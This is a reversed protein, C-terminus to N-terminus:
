VGEYKRYDVLYLPKNDKLYWFTLLREAMFTALQVQYKAGRTSPREGNKIQKEVYDWVDQPKDFGKSKLWQFGIYVVWNVYERFDEAKMIFSNAYFLTNGSNIIRDWAQADNPYLEKILKEVEDLDKKCHCAEYQQRVTCGLKLPNPAIAYHTKLIPEFDFDEPFDLRRRYQSVSIVKTEPEIANHAIWYHATLEAFVDNWEAINDGTNDRLETFKDAFGVQIPTYLKNDWIGYPVPKHVVIFAKADIRKTNGDM